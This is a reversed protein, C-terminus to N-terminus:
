GNTRDRIEKKVLSKIKENNMTHIYEAKPRISYSKTSQLTEM